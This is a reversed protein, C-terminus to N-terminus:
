AGGWFLCARRQAAANRNHSSVCPCSQASSPPSPGPERRLLAPIGGPPHLHDRWRELHGCVPHTHSSPLPPRDPHTHLPFPNTTLPRHAELRLRAFWWLWGRAGRLDAAGRQLGGLGGGVWWGACCSVSSGWAVDLAALSLRVGRVVWRLLLCVFGVCRATPCARSSRPPWTDPRGASRPSATPRRSRRRSASTRWSNTTTTTTTTHKPPLHVPLPRDPSPSRTTHRGRPRDSISLCAPLCAAPLCPPLCPPRTQHNSPPHHSVSHTVSRSTPTTATTRWCCIRQSNKCKVMKQKLLRTLHSSISSEIGPGCV